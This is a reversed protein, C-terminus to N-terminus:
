KVVRYAIIDYSNDEKVWKWYWLDARRTDDTTGNRFLVEVRQAPDVPCNGGSWLIWDNGSPIIVGNNGQNEVSNGRDTVEDGGEREPVGYLGLEESVRTLENLAEKRDQKSICKIEREIYWAAKKLDKIPDDTKLGARWIYKIANGLCFNMHETIEICEVGSPHKTYHPPKNVEDTM